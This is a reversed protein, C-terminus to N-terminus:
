GSEDTLHDGAVGGVSVLVVDLVPYVLMGKRRSWGLRNRVNWLANRSGHLSADKKLLKCVLFAGCAQAVSGGTETAWHHRAARGPFMEAGNRRGLTGRRVSPSCKHGTGDGLPAAGCARPVNRASDTAWRPMVVREPSMEAGNRRGVTGCRVSPSCKRGNGYGLPAAGCARPVSRGTETAWPHIEACEPFMEAGIRRGITGRRVGPRCRRGNGDGPLDPVPSPRSAPGPLLRPRLRPRPLSLAPPLFLCLSPFPSPCLDLLLYVSIM